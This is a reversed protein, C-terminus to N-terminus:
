KTLWRKSQRVLLESARTPEAMIEMVVREMRMGQSGKVLVVDGQKLLTQVAPAAERSDNFRHVRDKLMQNAAADAMFRAHEGVCVLEGAVDGALNGIDQHAQTAHTGLERMDGLVLVKRGPFEKATEIALHTAAPSANYTDDIIITDKIGKLIRMRGPPLQMRAMGEVAEALGIGMVKAAAAGAACAAAVGRGLVGNVSVPMVAGDSSLNFSVGLPMGKGDARVRVNSYQIDAGDGGGFTSDPAPSASRMELVTLDDYNLIVHGEVPVAKVLQAKEAALEKPSAFFEVHVPVPGVQTVIAIHPRFTAALRKIDGPRDAGYELVLVDPYEGRSGFLGAIGRWLVGLWFLPSGGMRAYRADFDGIVAASLGLPTNMNAAPSRVRFKVSLAAAVATRTSTKGANGTIGVVRPRFRGLHLRALPVLIAALITQM